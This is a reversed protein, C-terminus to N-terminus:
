LAVVNEAQPGKQGQTITFEVQQGEALTKFGSGQIASYHVFVDPGGERTIFGFGKSENFFKVTGTTTSM